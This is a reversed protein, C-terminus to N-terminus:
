REKFEDDDIAVNLDISEYQIQSTKQERIYRTVSFPFLVGNVARYDSFELDIPVSIRWDGPHEYYRIRLPIDTETDTFLECKIAEAKAREYVTSASTIGHQKVSIHNVRKGADTEAGVTQVDLDSANLWHALALVPLEEFTKGSLETISLWKRKQPSNSWGTPNHAITIYTGDPADLERRFRDEGLVKLRLPYSVPPQQGAFRTYTGSAVISEVATAAGLATLSRGLSAVAQPDKSRATTIRPSDNASASASIQAFDRTATLLLCIAAFFVCYRTHM